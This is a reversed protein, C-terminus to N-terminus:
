AHDDIGSLGAANVIVGNFRASPMYNVVGASAKASYPDVFISIGRREVWALTEDLNVFDIIKEDDGATTIPNWNANTFVPHNMLNEGAEGMQLYNFGIDGYARPNAIVMSRIYALTLDNMLWVAGERYEQALAFYGALLEADTMTHTAAVEVGDVAFLLAELVFNESLALAKACARVIWQQFLDQDELAEETVAILSGKKLMTTNSATFAAENVVYAAEEAITPLIATATSETPISFTLKDTYYKTIGCRDVLSYKGKLVHIKNALDTPVMPGLELAESEELVRMAPTGGNSVTMGDQMLNRVFRFSEQEESTLGKDGVITNINFTSRYKPDEEMEKRIVARMATEADAAAKEDAKMKAMLAIVEQETMNNDGIINETQTTRVAVTVEELEKHEGGEFGEPLDIGQETFLSRIPLVIADSSVPVRNAGTDFVSLEALAWTIVEGTVGDHRELYNMSGTSAAAKGVLAAEWVRTALPSDDLETTMWLGKEDVKSVTATGISTPRGMKRAQPSFGHMYLTPRKDGVNIMFDTRMSFYQKLKDKRSPSGYPAALVELLRKGNNLVARVAGGKLENLKEM